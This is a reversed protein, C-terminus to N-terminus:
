RTHEIADAFRCFRVLDTNRHTRECHRSRASDSSLAVNWTSSADEGIADKVTQSLFASRILHSPTARDLGDLQALRGSEVITTQTEKSVTISEATGPFRSALAERAASLLRQGEVSSSAHSSEIVAVVIHLPSLIGGHAIAIRKAAEFAELAQQDLLNLLQERQM